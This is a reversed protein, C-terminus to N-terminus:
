LRQIGRGQIGDAFGGQDPLIQVSLFQVRGSRAGEVSSWEPDPTTVLTFPKQIIWAVPESDSACSQRRGTNNNLTCTNFWRDYTPRPLAPDVGTSNAGSAGTIGGPFWSVIGSLQWGGLMSRTMRGGNRFFPLNYTSALNYQWPPIGGDRTIFQGIQDMGSNQYSTFTTATAITGTFLVTLGASLRKELRMLFSDYRASGISRGNETIGTFQPYPLLSQQLTMTAGNLSSGPLLGAYPNPVTTGTLNAGNSTYQDFTVSNFNKSTPLQRSRSGSYSVEVVARFPLEYQVGTSFSHLYPITRQPWIYSISQGVNTQLGQSSGPPLRIGEPFPNSLMGCAAGTCGPTTIPIIGANAVSRQAFHHLQVRYSPSVDATPSFALGWGGRIVLKSGIRYAYGLRPGFNNLDRKYPLRHSSDAFLLGGRVVPGGPPGLHTTTSTDFGAIQHDFRDTVPSEYDWRLGLNLTLNQTVRWDDQFFLAYYRQGQAAQNVYTSSLSNPYGLLLSALGDGVSSSAVQPNLRTENVAFSFTAFGSPNAQNNLMLRAEGGFKLTHQGVIKSLSEGVAWTDSFNLTDGSRGLASFGAINIM